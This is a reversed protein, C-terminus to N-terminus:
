EETFLEKVKTCQEGETHENFRIMEYFSPNKAILEQKTMNM